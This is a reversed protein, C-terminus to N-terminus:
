SKWTARQDTFLVEIEFISNFEIFWRIRQETKTWFYFFQNGVRFFHSCWAFVLNSLWINLYLFGNVSLTLGTSWFQFAPFVEFRVFRFVCVCYFSTWYFFSWYYIQTKEPTHIEDGFIQIEVGRSNTWEAGMLDVCFFLFFYM